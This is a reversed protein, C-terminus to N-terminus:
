KVLKLFNRGSKTLRVSGRYGDNKTEVFGLSMLGKTRNNGNIYYSMLPRVMKLENSLEGFSVWDRKALVAMLAIRQRSLSNFAMQDLVERTM